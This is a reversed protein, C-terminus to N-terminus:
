GPAKGGRLKQWQAMASKRHQPEHPLVTALTGFRYAFVGAPTVRYDADLGHLHRQRDLWRRLRGVVEDIRLGDLAREAERAAAKKNLGLRERIRKVAHDSVRDSVSM